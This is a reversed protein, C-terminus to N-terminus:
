PYAEQPWSAEHRNRWRYLSYSLLLYSVLCNLPKLLLWRKKLLDQKNFVKPSGLLSVWLPVTKWFHSYIFKYNSLAIRIVITFFFPTILQCYGLTPPSLPYNAWVEEKLLHSAYRCALRSTMCWDPASVSCPCQCLPVQSTKAFKISVLCCRVLTNLVTGQAHHTGWARFFRPNM